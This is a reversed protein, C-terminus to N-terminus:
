SGGELMTAKSGSISRGHVTAATVGFRATGNDGTFLVLTKERLHQRELEDVLKGVLKDMYVINDSYLQDATAGAKSDPTKLIPGHIHSMPYYIFFPQDKHQKIFKVLFDHMLDPLYEREKLEKQEGNVRYTPTQERW